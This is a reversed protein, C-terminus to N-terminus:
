RRVLDVEQSLQLHFCEENLEMEKQMLKVESAPKEVKQKQAYMGVFESM